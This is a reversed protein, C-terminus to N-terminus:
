QEAVRKSKEIEKYHWDYFENMVRQEERDARLHGIYGDILMIVALWILQGSPVHTQWDSILLFFGLPLIIISTLPVTEFLWLAGKFINFVVDWIWAGFSKKHTEM